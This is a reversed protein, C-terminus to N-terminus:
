IMSECRLRQELKDIDDNFSKSFLFHWPCGLVGEFGFKCLSNKKFFFAWITKYYVRFQSQTFLLARASGFELRREDTKCSKEADNARLFKLFARLDLPM